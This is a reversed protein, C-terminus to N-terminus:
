GLVCITHHVVFLMDVDKPVVSLSPVIDTLILQINVLAYYTNDHKRIRIPSKSLSIRQSQWDPFQASLPHRGRALLLLSIWPLVHQM